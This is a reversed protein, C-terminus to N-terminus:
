RKQFREKFQKYLENTVKRLSFDFGCGRTSKQPKELVSLFLAQEYTKVSRTM